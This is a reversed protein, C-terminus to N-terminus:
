CTKALLVPCFLSVFASDIIGPVLLSSAARCNRQSLWKSAATSIPAGLVAFALIVASLCVSGMSVGFSSAAGGKLSLFDLQRLWFVPLLEGLWSFMVPGLGMWLHLSWLWSSCGQSVKKM